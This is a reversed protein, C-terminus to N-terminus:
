AQNGHGQVAEILKLIKDGSENVKIIEGDSLRLQTHDMLPKIAQIHETNVYLVNYNFTLKIFM